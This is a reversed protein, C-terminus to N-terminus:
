KTKVSKKASWGSYKKVGGITKYARIRVYYRKGKKLKKVTLKAKSADKVTKIKAGKMSKKRSYTIQYGEINKVTKWTATFAKKGRKVRSLAPAGLKAIVKQASLVAGCTECHKGETKGASDFTPEVAPDIVTVHIGSPPVIETVNTGCVTCTKHVLGECVCTPVVEVDPKGWIHKGTAPVDVTETTGCLTCTRTGTGPVGCTPELTYVTDAWNHNILVTTEIVVKDSYSEKVFLLLQASGEDYSYFNTEDMGNCLCWQDVYYCKPCNFTIMYLVSGNIVSDEVGWLESLNYGTVKGLCDVSFNSSVTESDNEYIDFKNPLAAAETVANVNLTGASLLVVVMALRQTKLRFVYDTGETLGGVEWATVKKDTDTCTIEVSVAKGSLGYDASSISSDISHVIPGSSDGDVSLNVTLSDDAYVPYGAAALCSTLMILALFVSTIRKM